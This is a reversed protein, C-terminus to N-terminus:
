WQLAGFVLRVCHPAAVGEGGGFRGRGGVGVAFCLGTWAIWPTLTLLVTVVKRGGLVGAAFVIGEAM